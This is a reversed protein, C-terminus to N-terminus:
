PSRSKQGFRFIGAPQGSEELGAGGIEAEVDAPQRRGVGDAVGRAPERGIEFGAM